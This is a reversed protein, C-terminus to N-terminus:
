RVISFRVEPAARFKIPFKLTGSHDFERYGSKQIKPRLPDKRSKKGFKLGQQSRQFERHKSRQKQSNAAAM